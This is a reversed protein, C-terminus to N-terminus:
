VVLTVDGRLHAASPDGFVRMAWAVVPDPSTRSRVVGLVGPAAAGFRVLNARAAAALTGMGPPSSAGSSTEMGVPGRSAVMTALRDSASGSAVRIEDPFSADGSAHLVGSFHLDDGAGIGSPPIDM